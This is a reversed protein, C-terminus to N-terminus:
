LEDSLLALLLPGQGWPFVGTDRYLYDRAPGVPTPVSVPLGGRSDLAAVAAALARQRVAIWQPDGPRIGDTAAVMASLSYETPADTDDVITRWSGNHEHLQLAATLAAIRDSAAPEAQVSRLGYLAWGQGRGWHVGNARGTAVDYGHSFLGSEDQLVASVEEVLPAAQAPPLGPGDTHLCEVWITTGLLPLDPRHVPPQGPVPREAPMVAARFRDIAPAVRLDPRLRGLETLAEVSILHDLTSPGRPLTPAVLDAVAEIWQPRNLRQAARLIGVLALGEGFGWIRYSYALSRLAVTEILEDRAGDVPV